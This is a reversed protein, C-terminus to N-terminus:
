DFSCGSTQFDSKIVQPFLKKPPTWLIGVKCLDPLGQSKLFNEAGSKANRYADLTSVGLFTVILRQDSDICETRFGAGIYVNHDECFQTSSIIATKRVHPSSPQGSPTPQGGSGGKPLAIQTVLLSVVVIVLGIGAGTLTKRAGEVNERDGGANLYRFGGWIIMAFFVLAAAFLALRVIATFFDGLTPFAGGICQGGLKLACSIDVGESAANAAGAFLVSAILLSVAAILLGAKMGM